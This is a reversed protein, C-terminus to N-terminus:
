GPPGYLGRTRALLRVLGYLADINPTAIGVHAGIERVAGVLADIELTRGAHLDQLMSTRFAGLKRTVAHREDPTQDIACGFRTGIAQAETMVASCFSRVLEDDLIRDCTAQTLASVPNMTMNGWLKFWIDRQIHPSVTIGFGARTLLAAIEDVRRTAGGSPEGIILGNGHGARVVGPASASSSAHVVCGVVHQTPIARRVADGADVSALRLGACPGTAHDFFWWPVGNMAVLVSTHTSLLEGVLPAVAPLAPAKVAVIVLDQAGLERPDASARVPARVEGNADLQLRLGESRLAQLTAGRAILSLEIEAPKLRSALRAGVLGGIAGAGVICVKM